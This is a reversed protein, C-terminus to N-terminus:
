NGSYSYTRLYLKVDRISRLFRRTAEATDNLLTNAPIVIKWGTNWASRGVLRRNTFDSTLPTFFYFPHDVARFAQHKRPTLFGESLSNSGTWFDVDSFQSDGINFPLPLAYDQITFRRLESGDGLPPTRMTDEGTPIFFVYPTASLANPASSNPGTATPSGTAYADLGVYGDLVIGASHIKTAFSTSSYTHDGAALPQGFFNLGDTVTTSFPIIFGPVPTTSGSIQLCHASVDADNRLDTVMLTQLKEKWTKDEQSDDNVDTDGSASPTDRPIRFLEERLSFVTGYTDPNNFGLRTRVSSWDGKLKALQGSLGPDGTSSAGFIPQGAADRLGLARTAVISDLFEQGDGSGLLGTEYDYAKAALWTYRTAWDLLTQYQELVETRFTRFAVDRTRYGQTIAAARKRFIERSRQVSEGEAILAYLQMRRKQLMMLPQDVNSTTAYWDYFAAQVDAAMALYEPPFGAEELQRDLDNELLAVDTEDFDAASNAALSITTGIGLATVYLIKASFRAAFSPDNSTGITDPFGETAANAVADVIAAAAEATNATSRLAAISNLLTDIEDRATSSIDQRNLYAQIAENFTEVKEQLIAQRRNYVDLYAIVDERSADIDQLAIQILGPRQRRGMEPTAYQVGGEASMTFSMPTMRDEPLYFENFDLEGPDEPFYQRGESWYGVANVTVTYDQGANFADTFATARNVYFYRYLDPGDYGAPYAKGTGIDGAYPTGYIEILKLNFAREQDYVAASLDDAQNELSRLLRSSATAQDFTSFANNLSAVARDYIQEFHTKGAAVEAPSIDFLTSNADLGLPNLWANAKDAAKQIEDANLALEDLEPVTRRDIKQIGTHETDEAPLVANAVVWHYFAGQGGRAAWEDMGWHRTRKASTATGDRYNQAADDGDRLRRWGQSRDSSQAQRQVLSVIQKATRTVRAAASAFKREDLYDVQVPVGLVNVAEIRPAWTFNDNTLLRYYPTLASLYHGFADGHGQPFMRQADAADIRGDASDEQRERINYNLAYIVEGASIGRTYNWYMRNYSPSIEVGPSNLDDRGRLLALEEEMLNAVQGQFAFRATSTQNFVQEFDVAVQSSAVSGIAQADFAITPNAADAAAEDGIISYLDSIYGSALLLADNAPGYDQPPAGNISLMIGRNLITEYIELLGFENINSLNLAVDGEWRAGAQTLISVDTNVANNFFDSIRQNFPNIGALARKIWGEALAPATWDSWVLHAPHSTSRPRYRMIWYNDSLTQVSAGQVIYQNGLDSGGPNIWADGPFDLGPDLSPARGGIPPSYRWQFEYDGPNGAFDGSHRLTVKEDLPNASLLPKVQGRYNGEGVRIIHMSVPEGEPTAHAGGNGTIVTVYGSGIGAAALAYSNVVQDDDTIVVPQESTRTINQATDVEWTGPVTTSPVKTEVITALGDVASNWASRNADSAPVLDKVADLDDGRLVNLLFYDDGVIDDVFRGEFVLAGKTGILPNFYFREKLHPPLNQFYVKGNRADTAVSGPVSQLQGSGMLYTKERTPDLLNVTIVDAAATSARSQEYIVQVSTQNRMDPLGFQAKGLTQGFNLVPTGAPWQPQFVVDVPQDVYSGPAGARLYPQISGVEPRPTVGPFDFGQQVVYYYRMTFSGLTGTHPGRYVWHSHKRDEYTFKDYYAPTNNGADAGQTAVEANMLQGQANVPPPLFPLPAPAQLITGADVNYQFRYNHLADQKERLVRFVRMAPRGDPARYNVLVAPLSTASTNLDDRLAYAEGAILMAHEENPNYGPLSTDNQAYLSLDSLGALQGGTGNNRAMVIEDNADTSESPWSITYTATVAPWYLPRFDASPAALRRFWKVRLQNQGSLANVPIIESQAEAAAFGAPGQPDLYALPHFAKGTSVVIHGARSLPGLTDDPALPPPALREGVLATGTYNVMGPVTVGAVTQTGGNIGTFKDQTASLVRVYWFRGNSQMLLLARNTGDTGPSVTFTGGNLAAEDPTDQHILLPTHETFVDVPTAIDSGDLANLAYDAGDTPWELIYNNRFYPWRIGQADPKKWFIVAQGDATTEQEAFYAPDNNLPRNFIFPPTTTSGIPSEDPVLSADGNSPQLREGLHATVNFSTEGPTTGSFVDVVRVGLSERLGNVADTTEGLLEIFIRGTRERARFIKSGPQADLYFTKDNGNVPTGSNAPFDSRYHIYAEKVAPPLYVPPGDSPSETWFIRSPEVTGSPVASVIYTEKQVTYIGNTSTASVWHVDVSGPEAAYVKESHPSYYYHLVTGAPVPQTDGDITRIFEGPQAPKARWNGLPPTIQDGFAFDPSGLAFSTGIVVRRLQRTVGGTTAAPYAAPQPHTTAARDVGGSTIAASSFQGPTPSGVEPPAPLRNQVTAQVDAHARPTPLLFLLGLAYFLYRKM